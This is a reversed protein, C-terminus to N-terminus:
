SSQPQQPGSSSTGGTNQPGGNVADGVTLGVLSKGVASGVLSGDTVGDFAGIAVFSGVASSSVNTGALWAGVVVAGIRKEVLVGLWLIIVRRGVPKGLTSGVSTGVDVGGVREGVLELGVCLGVSDGEVKDGLTEGVNDGVATFAVLSGVM